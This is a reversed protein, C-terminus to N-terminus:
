EEIQVRVERGLGPGFLVVQGKGEKATMTAYVLPDEATCFSAEGALRKLSRYPEQGQEFVAHSDMQCNRYRLIVGLDGCLLLQEYFYLAAEASLQEFLLRDERHQEVLTQMYRRALDPKGLDIYGMMVQLQNDYDHRLISLLNVMREAEM